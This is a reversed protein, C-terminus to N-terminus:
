RLAERVTNRQDVRLDSVVQEVGSPWRVVCRDVQKADGLGFHLVFDNQACYGSGAQVVAACQNEGFTLTASAGIANTNLGAGVLALQIWHRAPDVENQYVLLPGKQNAVIVDLVGRHFLDATAVARGDLEDIVGVVTAVDVFKSRGKNVLVCSREYGSLSRDDMPAWNAADEALGGAAGGIKAMDFWYDRARSASVFGNAVFLDMRGDNNLDGFQAGWAWGCDLVADQAVNELKGRRSLGNIRLNNGQFLFGDKSINTVFVGLRGDGLVDGISVSMGSKTSEELGIGQALEFREGGKNLFLEEPGYDNALYLDQWGDGNMDAAAVALTWRTSDCGTRATVDEFAFNGLNRYLYNHGGNNAFEFSEQMMRTTTLHELDVDDRFYGAMYLDLMGDRDFDFWVAAGCNMWRELGSNKTVDTFHLDGDNRFLMGRGWKYLYVDQDGDGDADAWVSGMSAGNGPTNVDALGASRARDEFTGDGRNVYLANHAGTASTTTYLDAWGDGNADVVSVSAGSQGDIQPLINALKADIAPPRHVFDIGISKSVETFAFGYVDSAASQQAWGRWATFALLGVFVVHLLANRGSKQSM